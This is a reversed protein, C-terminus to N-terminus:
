PESRRLLRLGTRSDGSRLASLVRVPFGASRRSSRPSTTGLRLALCGRARPTGWPVSRGRSRVPSRAAGRSVRSSRTPTTTPSPAFRRLDIVDLGRAFAAQLIVDNFSALATVARRGGLGPLNADYVTCVTLPLGRELLGDLVWGYGRRFAGVREELLDLADGMTGVPLPGLLDANELGDNGGLSLVLHTAHGPIRDFQEGVDATTTGDVACLTVTWDPLATRLSAAVDPGDGVYAKNDFISDGLLVVSAMARRSLVAWGWGCANREM